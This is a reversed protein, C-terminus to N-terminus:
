YKGSGEVHVNVQAVQNGTMIEVSEKVKIQTKRAIQPIDIGMETIM